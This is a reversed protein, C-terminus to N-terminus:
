TNYICVPNPCNRGETVSEGAASWTIGTSPPLNGFDLGRSTATTSSGQILRRTLRQFLCVGWNQTWRCGSGGLSLLGAKISRRVGALGLNPRLATTETGSCGFVPVQPTLERACRPGITQTKQEAGDLFSDRSEAQFFTVAQKQHDGDAGGGM